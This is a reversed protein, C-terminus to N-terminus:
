REEDLKAVPRRPKRIKIEEEIGLDADAGADRQRATTRAADDNGEVDRFTDGINTDYNFLDDLDDRTPPAANGGPLPGHPEPASPDQDYPRTTIDVDASAMTM